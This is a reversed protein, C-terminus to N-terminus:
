IRYVVIRSDRIFVINKYDDVLELNLLREKELNIFFFLYM